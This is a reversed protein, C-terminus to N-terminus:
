HALRKTTKTINKNGYDCLNFIAQINRDTKALSRIARYTKKNCVIKKIKVKKVDGVVGNEDKEFELEPQLDLLGGHLEKPIVSKIYGSMKMAIEGFYKQIDESTDASVSLDNTDITFSLEVTEQKNNEM